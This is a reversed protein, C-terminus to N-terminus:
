AIEYCDPKNRWDMIEIFQNILITDKARQEMTLLGSKIGRNIRQNHPRTLAHVNRWYLEARRNKCNM